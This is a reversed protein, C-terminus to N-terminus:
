RPIKSALEYLRQLGEFLHYAEELFLFAIINMAISRPDFRIFMKEIFDHAATMRSCCYILGGGLVFGGLIDSPYHLGLAVRSMGAVISTWLLCLLGLRKNEVFVITSIAFFATATDSPMSYIRNAWHARSWGLINELPLSEDFVPRLHSPLLTQLKVSILVAAMVGLFGFTM